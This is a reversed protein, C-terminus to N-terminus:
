EKHNAQRVQIQAQFTPQITPLSMLSPVAAQMPQAVGSDRAFFM